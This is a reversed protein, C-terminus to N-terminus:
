RRWQADVPHRVRSPQWEHGVEVPEPDVKTFRRIVPEPIEKMGEPLLNQEPACQNVSFSVTRTNSKSKPM